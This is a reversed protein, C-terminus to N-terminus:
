IRALFKQWLLFFAILGVWGGLIFIAVDKFSFGNLPFIATGVALMACNWWVLNWGKERDEREKRTGMCTKERKGSIVCFVAM